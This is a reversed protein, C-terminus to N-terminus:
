PRSEQRADAERAADQLLRRFYLHWQHTIAEEEVARRLDSDQKGM